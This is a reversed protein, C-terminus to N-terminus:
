RPLYSNIINNNNFVFTNDPCSSQVSAALFYSIGKKRVIRSQRNQRLSASEFRIKVIFYIIRCM